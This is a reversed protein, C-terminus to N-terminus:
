NNKKSLILPGIQVRNSFELKYVVENMELDVEYLNYAWDSVYATKDDPTLIILDTSKWLQGYDYKMVDIYDAYNNLMTDYIYVKGEPPPGFTWNKGPNTMYLKSNDSTLALTASLDNNLLAVITDKDLDFVAQGAIYLLKNDSLVMNNYVGRNQYIHIIERKGYDYSFLAHNSDAAYFIQSGKLFVINQRQFDYVTHLALSDFYYISDTSDDVYGLDFIKTNTYPRSTVIFVTDNPNKYFSSWHSGGDPDNNIIKILKISNTTLDVTYIKSPKFAMATSVYMKKDNNIVVMSRITKDFGTISDVISNTYIDVIYIKSGTIDGVYLYYGLDTKNAMTFNITTDSSIELTYLKQPKIIPKTLKSNTILVEFKPNEKVECKTSFSTNSSQFSSYSITNGPLFLIKRAISQNRGILRCIYVGHSVKNGVNNTGDWKITKRNSILDKGVSFTKVERGLIDYIKLQLDENPSSSVPINTNESFPNPYNQGLEFDKPLYFNEDKVDTVINLQYFGLSDSLTTYKKSWDNENIFTISAYKVATSDTSVNGQVHFTQGSLAGQFSLSILIFLFSTEDKVAIRNTHKLIVLKM